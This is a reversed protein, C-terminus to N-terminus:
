REAQEGKIYRVDVPEAPSTFLRRHKGEIDGDRLFGRAELMSKCRAYNELREAAGVFSNLTWQAWSVPRDCGLADGTAPHRYLAYTSSCGMLALAVGIVLLRTPM